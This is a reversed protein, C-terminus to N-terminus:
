GVKIIDLCLMKNFVVPYFILSIWFSCDGSFSLATFLISTDSESKENFDPNRSRLDIWRGTWLDINWSM